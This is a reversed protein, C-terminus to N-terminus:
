AITFDQNIKFKKEITTFRVNKKKLHIHAYNKM